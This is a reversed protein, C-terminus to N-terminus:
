ADEGEQEHGPCKGEEDPTPCYPVYRTPIDIIARVADRLEEFRTGDDKKLWNRSAPWRRVVDIIFGDKEGHLHFSRGRSTM